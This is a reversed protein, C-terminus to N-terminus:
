QNSEGPSASDSKDVLQVAEAEDAWEQAMRKGQRRFRQLESKRRRQEEPSKRSRKRPSKMLAAKIRATKGEPMAAFLTALLTPQGELKRRGM